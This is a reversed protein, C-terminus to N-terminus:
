EYKGKKINEEIYSLEEEKTKAEGRKKAELLDALIANLQGRQFGDLRRIEPRTCQMRHSVYFRFAKVIRERWMPTTKIYAAIMVEVPNEDMACYWQLDTLDDKVTDNQYFAEKLIILADRFYRSLQVDNFFEELSDRNMDFTVLLFRLLCLNPKRILEGFFDKYRPIMEFEAEWEKQFPYDPFLYEWIGYDNMSDLIEYACSEQLALYMEHWLRRRSLNELVGDEVAKRAFGDTEASLEFGYRAKFRLARVIRTPDEVFSLNHLVRIKKEKLDECGNYYDILLGFTEYNLSLAMANVTFDRRFLDQKLTSMEVQPKAAPYEYFETRAGAIDIKVVGNIVVTATGFKPYSSVSGDVMTAVKEAFAIGDGEVVIDLDVSRREMLLDRVLGGVLFASIGERDALSAIRGLIHFMQKPLTKELADLLNICDKGGTRKRYTLHQPNVKNGYIMELFDTRTVIGVLEGNEMVPVRGVNHEVMLTRVEEVSMDPSVTQVHHSMYGKVPVNGLGHYKCKEVDRHTIIGILKGQDMVPYGSHGYRIMYEGVENVTIDACITKVPTTMIDRVRLSPTIYQSLSDTLEVAIESVPRSLDKLMASAAMLHGRGGYPALIDRVSIEKLSSRGVLYIRNEMRVVTFVADVSFTDKLKMTLVSLDSVFNELDATAILIDKGEVTVIRNQRLLIHFLESQEGSLSGETYEAIVALNAGQELLWAAALMDRVTTSTYCLSGTDDYIGLALATAEQASLSMEREKIREVLQTVNAGVAEYHIEAGPVDDDADEHHDYVIVSVGDNELVKSFDNLRKRSRTDVMILTDIDKKDIYNRIEIFEGHIAIFDKVCSRLKGVTVLAAGPYLKQAAVMSALADFDLNPHAIIAKM